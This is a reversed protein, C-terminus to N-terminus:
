GAAVTSMQSRRLINPQPAQADPGLHSNGSWRTWTSSCWPCRAAPPRAKSTVSPTNKVFARACDGCKFHIESRPLSANGEPDEDWEEVWIQYRGVGELLRGWYLEWEGASDRQLMRGLEYVDRYNPEGDLFGASQWIRELAELGERRRPPVESGGIPEVLVRVFDTFSLPDAAVSQALLGYIQSDVASITLGTRSSM